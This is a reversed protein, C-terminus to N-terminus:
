FHVHLFFVCPTLPTKLALPNPTKCFHSFRKIILVLTSKRGRLFILVFPTYFNLFNNDFIGLIVTLRRFNVYYPRKPWSNACHPYFILVIVAKRMEPTKDLHWRLVVHDQVHLLALPEARHFAALSSTQPFCPLNLIM